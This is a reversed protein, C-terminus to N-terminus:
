TARDYSIRRPRPWGAVAQRWFFEYTHDTSPMMMRWRWSAEGAFAM